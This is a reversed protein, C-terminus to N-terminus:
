GALEILHSLLLGFDRYHSCETYPDCNGLIESLAEYQEQLSILNQQVLARSEEDVFELAAYRDAALGIIGIFKWAALYAEKYRKGYAPNEHIVLSLDREIIREDVAQFYFSGIEGIGLGKGMELASDTLLVEFMLASNSGVSNGMHKMEVSVPNAFHFTKMESYVEPPVVNDENGVMKWSSVLDGLYPNANWDVREYVWPYTVNNPVMLSMVLHLDSDLPHPMINMVMFMGHMEEHLIWVRKEKVSNIWEGPAVDRPDIFEGARALEVAEEYSRFRDSARLYVTESDASSVFKSALHEGLSVPIPIPTPSPVQTPELTSFPTPKVVPVPTATPVPTYTPTPTKMARSVNPSVGFDPDQTPIVQVTPVPVTAGVSEEPQVDVSARDESVEPLVSGGAMGSSKQVSASAKSAAAEADGPTEGGSGADGCAMTMLMVAVVVFVVKM